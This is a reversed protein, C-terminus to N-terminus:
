LIFNISRLLEFYDDTEMRITNDDILQFGPYFSMAVATAMEKYCVEFVFHEPMKCVADELNQTLAQRVGERIQTCAMEPHMCITSGGFGDKVAVSKLKPHLHGSDEILMQDGSLFVSPVGCTSAAWSYLQFESCKKGNLKIWVTSRTETHCLPNGTRGAASHYGVFLAADFSSDIGYVMGMPDGSWGRIVKVCSPLRSVDIHTGTNHADRVVIETAGAEIAGECAAAIEATHQIGALVSTSKTQPYCEDWIATLATGEIDASIFIRM